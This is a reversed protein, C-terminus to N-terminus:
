LPRRYPGKKQIIFISGIGFHDSPHIRSNDPANMRETGVLHGMGYPGGGADFTFCPGGNRCTKYYLRDLRSQFTHANTNRACDYTEMGLFPGTSDTMGQKTSADLAWSDDDLTLNMDGAVIINQPCRSAVSMLLNFQDKKIQTHNNRFVSELHATFIITNLSELYLRNIRRGMRTEPFPVSEFQFPLDKRVLMLEGYGQPVSRDFAFNYRKRLEGDDLLVRLSHKVIEQLCVVDYASRKLISAIYRTRACIHRPDFWVNWTLISLSSM